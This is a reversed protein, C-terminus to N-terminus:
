VAKKEKYTYKIISIQIYHRIDYYSGQAGMYHFYLDEEEYM